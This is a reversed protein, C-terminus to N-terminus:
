QNLKNTYQQLIDLTVPGFHKYRIYGDAGIFFTVPHGWVEFSNSVNQDSDLPVPITYGNENMFDKIGKRTEKEMVNVALIVIDKNRHKDYFAQLEPM